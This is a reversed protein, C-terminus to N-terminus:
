RAKCYHGVDAVLVTAASLEKMLAAFNESAPDIQADVYFMHELPHGLIPRSELKALNVGHEAFIQLTALLAGPRDATAYVLSVKDAAEPDGAGRRLVAFRTYNATLDEIAEALIKMGYTEAAERGAIAAEAVDGRQRVFEVAGATDLTPLLGWKPHMRLYRRCQALAQPHSYVRQVDALTAQPHGILNQDIRLRLEAVIRVDRHQLLLDYVEHVSGGSSNELPAVAATAAGSAVAAFVEAFTECPAFKVGAGFVNRVARESFAGPVGQYAVCAGAAPPPAAAPGGEAKADAALQAQMRRSADLLVVFLAQALDPPVDAARAWALRQELLLREREPDFVPSDRKAKERGIRRVARLRAGVARLLDEDCRDILQRLEARRPRRASEPAMRRRQESARNWLPELDGTAFIRRVEALSAAVRDLAEAVAERNLDLIGRWVEYESAAIRTADLFGRGAVRALLGHTRDAALAADMLAIALLQPAHSVAALLRDHEEPEIAIPAAGLDEVVGILRLLAEPPTAPSPCLLYPRANFLLADANEAGAHDSGAIPHGGIFWVGSPMAAWARRTIDTKVSGVDTVITGPRLHPALGAVGDAIATVPGALVVLSAAPLRAAAEDLPAVADGIQM